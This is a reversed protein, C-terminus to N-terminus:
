DDLNALYNPINKELRRALEPTSSALGKLVLEFKTVYDYNDDGLYEKFHALRVAWCCSEYAVGTTEKNTIYTM